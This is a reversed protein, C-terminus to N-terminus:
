NSALELNGAKAGEIWKAYAEESVVKVEIPMYAHDKGCLTTCQGFYIGEKDARFWTEGLRGPVASHMVGFAPVAWAHIVDAGTVEVKVIKGVPVILPNDVALLWDSQAYGKAELEEKPLLISSFSVGADPYEYDWYWQNGTVKVVLDAVREGNANEPLELQNFLAPLSFSGIFVLILIPVLTWAVEIPTNHTFKAPTPNAKANFRVIVWLLLGCVFVTIVGVIWLIMHELAQAEVAVPTAAPQFGTGKPVPVGIKELGEAIAGSAALVLASAGLSLGRLSTKISM